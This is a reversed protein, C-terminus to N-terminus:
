YTILSKCCDLQESILDQKKLTEVNTIGACSNLEVLNTISLLVEISIKMQEPIPENLLHEIHTLM